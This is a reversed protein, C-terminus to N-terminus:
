RPVRAVLADRVGNRVNTLDDVGTHEIGAGWPTSNVNVDVDAGPVSNGRIFFDERQYYNVHYQTGFPLRRESEIDIDSDNEIADIYATFPVTYSGISGANIAVREVLDYTSGGGHSYGFVSLIGIGRKAIARVVEAYAPGNGSGDVDDEDYMHVDYGMAYLDRAINFVGHNSNPPDSPSQNEGGLAIVVSTFPYFLVTDSAIAAGGGAPRALVQVTGSVAAVSEVWLSTNGTTLVAEDNADLLPFAKGADLWVKLHAGSRVIVYEWGAPALAPTNTIALEILDNEGVVGLQTADSLGNGDDDDTNRRIGAGLTEEDADPVARRAFPVGYAETQPRYATLDIQVAPPTPTPSPSPTPTPTATPEPTATPAPTPTPTAAPTPTATPALTPTPTATPALTPTPTPTAAPAENQCGQDCGDGNTRNGDDCQEHDSEIRGNGCTSPRCEISVTDRDLAGSSTAVQVAFTRRAKSKRGTRSVKLPVPLTFPASCLDPESSTTGPFAVAGRRLVSVGFDSSAAGELAQVAAADAADRPRLPNPRKLELAVIGSPVCALRPDHNNICLAAAVSCSANDLDPDLDCRLDGEFCVVRNRPVGRRDLAPVADVRWELACDTAPSGGGPICANAPAAVTCDDASASRPAGALASLALLVVALTACVHTTRTRASALNLHVRTHRHSGAVAPM